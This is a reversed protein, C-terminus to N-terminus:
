ESIVSAKLTLQHQQMWNIVDIHRVVQVQPQALVYTLFEVLVERREKASTTTMVSNPKLSLFDSHFGLVFPERGGSIRKDFNYKLVALIEAKTFAYMGDDSSYWNYDFPTLKIQQIGSLKLRHHLKQNLSYSLGYNKVQDDPIMSLLHLPLSWIKPHHSIQPQWWAFKAGVSGESMVYPWLLKQHQVSVDYSLGVNEMATFTANNYILFPARFGQIDKRSIGIDDSLLRNCDFIQQQWKALDHTQGWLHDFTHNGVEHGQLYIQRWLSKLKPQKTASACSPFFSAKVNFDLFTRLTWDLGEVDANDDFGFSVFQPPKSQHTAAFAISCGMMLLLYYALKLM